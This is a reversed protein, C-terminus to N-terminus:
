TRTGTRTGRLTSARALSTRTTSQRPRPRSARRHTTPRPERSFVLFRSFFICTHQRVKLLPYLEKWDKRTKTAYKKAAQIAHFTCARLAIDSWVRHAADYFALAGDLVGTAPVFRKGDLLNDRVVTLIKEMSATNEYVTIYFALVHHARGVTNIGVNGCV